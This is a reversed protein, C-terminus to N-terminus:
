VCLSLESFHTIKLKFSKGTHLQLAALAADGNADDGLQVFEVCLCVPVCACMSDSTKTM